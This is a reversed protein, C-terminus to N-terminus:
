PLHIELKLVDHNEFFADDFIGHLAWMQVLYQAFMDYREPLADGYFDAIAENYIIDLIREMFDIWGEDDDYIAVYADGFFAKEIYYANTNHNMGSAAWFELRFVDTGTIEYQYYVEFIADTISFATFDYYLQCNSPFVCDDRDVPDLEERTGDDYEIVCYSPEMDEDDWTLNPDPYPALRVFGTGAKVRITIDLVARSDYLTVVTKIGSGHGGGGWMILNPAFVDVCVAPIYLEFDIVYSGESYVTETRPKYQPKSAELKYDTYEYTYLSASYFGDTDTTVTTTFSSTVPSYLRVSAANMGQGTEDDIVQGSCTVTHYKKLQFNYNYTTPSWFTAKGSKYGSKTATLEYRMYSPTYISVYYYGSSSTYVTKSIGTELERLKVAVGSIGQGTKYDTVYGKCTIRYDMSPPRIAHVTTGLVLSFM